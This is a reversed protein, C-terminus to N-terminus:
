QEFHGRIDEAAQKYDESSYKHTVGKPVEIQQRTPAHWGQLEAMEKIAAIQNREQPSSNAIRSLRELAQRKTMVGKVAATEVENKRMAQLFARGKESARLRSVYMSAANKSGKGGAQYYADRDSLGSVVGLLTRGQQPALQHYLSVQEETLGSLGAGQPDSHKAEAM